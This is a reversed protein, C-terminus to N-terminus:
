KVISLLIIIKNNFQKDQNKRSFNVQEILDEMKKAKSMSSIRSMSKSTGIIKISFDKFIKIM